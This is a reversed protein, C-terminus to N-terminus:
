EYHSGKSFSGIQICLELQTRNLTKPDQNCNVTGHQISQSVEADKKNPGFIILSALFAVILVLGWPSPQPAKDM